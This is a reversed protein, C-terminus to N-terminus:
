FIKHYLNNKYYCQIIPINKNINKYNISIFSSARARARARV